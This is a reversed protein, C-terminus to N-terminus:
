WCIQTFLITGSLIWPIKHPLIIPHSTASWSLTVIALSLIKLSWPLNAEESHLIVKERILLELASKSLWCHSISKLETLKLKSIRIWIILEERTVLSILLPYKLSFIRRKDSSLKCFLMHGQLSTMPITRLHSEWSVERSSSILSSKLVAFSSRTWVLSTSIERRTKESRCFIGITWCIM